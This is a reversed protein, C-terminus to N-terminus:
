ELDYEKKLIQMIGNVKEILAPYSTEYFKLRWNWDSLLNIYADMYQNADKTLPLQLRILSDVGPSTVHSKQEKMFDLNTFASYYQSQLIKDRLDAAKMRTEHSIQSNRNNIQQEAYYANIKHVLEKNKFLRLNGSQVLQNMTSNNWDLTYLNSVFRSYYYFKGPVASQGKSSKSFSIISDMCRIRFNESELASRIETTDSQLDSLFSKAYDKARHREVLNERQNEALFGLFVALFLMLFELLYETWKKTHAPHHSHHVEM